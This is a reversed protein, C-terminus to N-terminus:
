FRLFITKTWENVGGGGSNPSFRLFGITRRSIELSNPPSYGRDNLTAANTGARRKPRAFLPFLPRREIRSRLQPDVREVADNGFLISSLTSLLCSHFRTKKRFSIHILEYHINFLDQGNKMNLSAIHILNRQCITTISSFLFITHYNHYRKMLILSQCTVSFENSIYVIPSLFLFIFFSAGLM